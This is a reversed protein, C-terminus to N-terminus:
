TTHCSPRSTNRLTENPWYASPRQNGCITRPKELKLLRSIPKTTAIGLKTATIVINITAACESRVPSRHRCIAAAEETAAAPKRPHARTRDGAKDIMNRDSALAPRSLAWPGKQGSGDFNKDPLAAAPPIASM